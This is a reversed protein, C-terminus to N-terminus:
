FVRGSRWDDNIPCKRLENKPSNKGSTKEPGKEALEYLM